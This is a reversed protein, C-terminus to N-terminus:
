KSSDRGFLREFMSRRRTHKHNHHKGSNKGAKEAASVRSMPSEEGSPWQMRPSAQCLRKDVNSPSLYGSNQVPSLTEAIDLSSVTSMPKTISETSASATSNQSYLLRPSLLRTSIVSVQENIENDDDGDEEIVPDIFRENMKTFPSELAALPFGDRKHINCQKAEDLDIFPEQIDDFTEAWPRPTMQPSPMKSYLPSCLCPGPLRTSLADESDTEKRRFLRVFSRRHKQKPASSDIPPALLGGPEGLEVPLPTHFLLHQPSEVPQQDPQQTAPLSMRRPSRRPSPPEKFSVLASRNGSPQPPPPASLPSAVSDMSYQPKGRAAFSSPRVPSPTGFVPSHGAFLGSQTFDESVAASRRHAHARRRNPAAPQSSNFSNVRNHDVIATATVQSVATRPRAQRANGPFAFDPNLDMYLNNRCVLM